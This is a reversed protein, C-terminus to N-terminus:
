RRIIQSIQAVLKAFIYGLIPFVIIFWATDFAIPENSLLSRLLLIGYLVVTILTMLAIRLILWRLAHFLTKMSSYM